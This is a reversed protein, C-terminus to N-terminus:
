VVAKIEMVEIEAGCGNGCEYLKIAELKAVQGDDRWTIGKMADQTSRILKDVDPTKEHYIPADPKLQGNTRYHYKPRPMYFYVVLRLPGAMLGKGQMAQHAAFSVSNRWDQNKAADRVTILPVDNGKKDKYTVVQGGKRRVPQAIKSGGQKPIGPAFFKIEV